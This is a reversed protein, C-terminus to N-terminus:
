TMRKGEWASLHTKTQLFPPHTTQTRRNTHTHTLRHIVRKRNICHIRLEGAYELFFISHDKKFVLLM